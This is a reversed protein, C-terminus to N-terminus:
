VFNVYSLRCIVLNGGVQVLKKELIDCFGAKLSLTLYPFFRFVGGAVGEFLRRRMIELYGLISLYRSWM